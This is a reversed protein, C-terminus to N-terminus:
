SLLNFTAIMAAGIWFLLAFALRWGLPAAALKMYSGAVMTAKFAALAMILVVGSREPFVRGIFEVSTLTAAILLLMVLTNGHFLRSV